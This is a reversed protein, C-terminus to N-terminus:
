STRPSSRVVRFGVYNFYNDRSNCNFRYASRCEDPNYSWSGGRMMKTTHKDNSLWASGDAPAGNYNPHYDDECWEYVNGHMDYLGFANAVKFYGVPTTQERYEGKIGEGYTYNGDYNALETSLTEGFHFPQNYKENWEALSPEERVGLGVGVPSPLIARCAYEWEAETPLRYEQETLKSIRACFEKAEDWNVREVPRTWREYEKYPEKFHSPDPDLDINVKLDTREAIAKWQAQTIPYRGMYFSPVTVKHQPKERDQSQLEDEPAGMWFTGGPIEMLELEIREALLEIIGEAQQKQHKIVWQGQKRRSRSQQRELTAVTFEFTRTEEIDITVVEFTCTKLATSPVDGVKLDNTGASSSELAVPVPELLVPTMADILQQLVGNNEAWQILNSILKQLNSAQFIGQYNLSLSSLIQAIFHVIDPLTSFRERLAKILREKLSQKELNDAFEAYDGGLRKLVELAIEAFAPLEPNSEDPRKLQAAFDFLSQGFQEEVYRSVADFVEQSDSVPADALFIHRIKEDVFQYEVSDALTDTAMETPPKLLGGLFVEAVHVPQSKPLLTAQILRVVPLNIMPAAALLGALKWAVPSAKLQFRNVREEANLQSVRNQPLNESTQAIEAPLIVGPSQVQSKGVVLDSWNAATSPELTLVPIKIGAAKFDKLLLLEKIVLEQNPSGPVLNGLLVSSGMRLGTRSWLWHPLMQVIAMPQTKAWEKLPPLLTGDHWFPSVCDSVILILRRCSPDLLERPSAARKQSGSRILPKKQTEDASLGWIRVERFIGYHELLRQLEGITHQWLTMSPSEDVVLALDLWPEPESQLVPVCFGAQATSNATEVEDLITLRGSPVRRMLPRLAKAFELPERLSPADPVRIPLSKRGGETPVQSSGIDTYLSAATEYIEDIETINESISSRNEPTEERAINASNSQTSPSVQEEASQQKVLALWLVDAIESGSLKLDVGLAAILQTLKSNETNEQTM